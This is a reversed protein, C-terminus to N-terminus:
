AVNLWNQLLLNLLLHGRQTEDAAVGHVIPDLPKRSSRRAAMRVQSKRSMLSLSARMSEPSFLRRLAAWFIRSRPGFVSTM